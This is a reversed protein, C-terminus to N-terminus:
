RDYPARGTYIYIYINIYIYIYIYIYLIYYIIYIYIIYIVHIYKNCLKETFLQAIKPKFKVTQCNNINVKCICAHVYVYMCVRM